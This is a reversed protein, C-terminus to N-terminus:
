VVSKRDTVSKNARKRRSLTNMTIRRLYRCAVCATESSVILSCKASFCCGNSAVFSKKSTPKLGCGPCLKLNGVELLLNEAEDVSKLEQIKLKKGRIYVAASVSKGTPPTLNLVVRRSVHLSDLAGNDSLHCFAFTMDSSTGLDVKTWLPPVRLETFQSPVSPGCNSDDLHASASCTVGESSGEPNLHRKKPPPPPPQYCLNRAKRKRAVPKSVYKPADPFKTPVADKTLRPVDRKIEVVNGQIVTKYSREIFCPEFHRECVVSAEDLQKDARKINRAWEQLKEKDKPTRFISYKEKCSKYGSKCGPVFCTGDRKARKRSSM